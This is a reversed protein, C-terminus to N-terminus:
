PASPTGQVIFTQKTTHFDQLYTVGNENFTAVGAETNKEVILRAPITIPKMQSRRWNGENGEAKLTLQVKSGSPETWTVKYEGQPIQLNGVRVDVTLVIDQSNKSNKAAARPLFCLALLFLLPIGWIRKM